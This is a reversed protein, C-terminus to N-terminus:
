TTAPPEGAPGTPTEEDLAPPTAEAAPPALLTAGADPTPTPPHALAQLAALLQEGVPSGLGTCPNWVPAAWYLQNNGQTIPRFVVSGALGYLVANLFGLRYGLRQGLLLVLTALFPTAASTGGAVVPQGGFVTRYGQLLSADAALDPVGRWPSHQYPYHSAAAQQYAPQAYLTSYGGGTAWQGGLENWVVEALLQADTITPVTGGCGLVLPSSAPLSVNPVGLQNYAGHDASAALVTIGLMAALYLLENMEQVDAAPYYYESGAWSVSVVAPHNAADGVVARLAELLTSGYYVVLRAQPALAGAVELDLAVEANDLLSTAAPGTPPPTGVEVIKPKKLGAEAFFEKLDGQNLKGGLEVFGITQGEGALGAPFAYARALEQPTYGPPMTTAHDDAPPPSGEGAPLPRRLRAPRRSERRVPRELPQAQRVLGALAPPMLLPTLGALFPPQGASQLVAVRTHFAQEVAQVTGTLTLSGTLLCSRQVQLQRGQYYDAVTALDAPTTGLLQTLEDHSPYTRLHPPASLLAALRATLEPTAAPRRLLLEVTLLRAPNPYGALTGVAQPASGPIVLFSPTM